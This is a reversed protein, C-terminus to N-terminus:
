LNLETEEQKISEIRSRIKSSLQYNGIALPLALELQELAQENLGYLFFYEAKARFVGLRHGKLGHAEALRRWVYPSQSKSLSLNELLYIAEGIQKNKILTEAYMMTLPYNGPHIALADELTAKANPYNEEEYAIEADALLYAIRNPDGNRLKALLKKAVSFQKLETNVIVLGYLTGKLKLGTENKSNAILIKQYNILSQSQIVELRNRILQYDLRDPYHKKPLQSSRTRADSIRSETVPHTLLYEPPSTGSYKSVEQLKVFFRSMADPDYQSEILNQMGIRDAEKENKRSFSLYNEITRAQTAVLAGIGPETGVTLLVLVSALYAGINTVQNSEQEALLRAFHRQSLHAIEHAIVASLEDESEAYKFLGTNVAVVGGPMAFANIADDRILLTHLTKDQLQSNEALRYTLSHFYENALPDNVIPLQARVQRILLKGISQEERLSIVGSLHDNLIPLADESHDSTNAFVSNSFGITLILTSILLCM